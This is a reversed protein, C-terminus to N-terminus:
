RAPIAAHVSPVLEPLSRHGDYGRYDSDYRETQQEPRKRSLLAERRQLNTKHAAKHERAACLQDGDIQPRLRRGPHQKRQRSQGDIRSMQHHRSRERSLEALEPWPLAENPHRKQSVLNPCQRFLARCRSSQM